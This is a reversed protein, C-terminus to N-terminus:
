FIMQHRWAEDRPDRDAKLADIWHVIAQARPQWLEKIKILYALVAEARGAEYLENALRMRPGFASLTPTFGEDASSLLYRVAEKIDGRRLVIQGLLQEAFHKEDYDPGAPFGRDSKQLVALATVEAQNLNGAYLHARVLDVELIALSSATPDSLAFVRELDRVTDQYILRREKEDAEAARSEDFMFLNHFPMLTDVSPGERELDEFFVSVTKNRDALLALRLANTKEVIEHIVAEAQEQSTFGLHEM